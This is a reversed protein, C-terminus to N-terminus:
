IRLTGLPYSLHRLMEKEGRRGPREADPLDRPHALLLSFRDEGFDAPRFGVPLRNARM